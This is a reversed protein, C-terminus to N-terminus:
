GVWSYHKLKECLPSLQVLVASHTFFASSSFCCPSLYGARCRQGTGDFVVSEFFSYTFVTQEFQDSLLHCLLFVLPPFFDPKVASTEPHTLAFTKQFVLYFLFLLVRQTPYARKLVLATTKGPLPREM